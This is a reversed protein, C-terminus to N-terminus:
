TCLQDGPSTHLAELNGGGSQRTAAAAGEWRHFRHLEKGAGEWSGCTSKSGGGAAERLLLTVAVLERLLLPGGITRSIAHQAILSLINGLFSLSPFKLM